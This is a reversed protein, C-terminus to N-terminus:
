VGENWQEVWEVYVFATAGHQEFKNPPVSTPLHKIRVVRMMELDGRTNGLTVRDGPTPIQVFEYDGRAGAKGDTVEIVRCRVM